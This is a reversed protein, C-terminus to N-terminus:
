AKTSSAKKLLLLNLCGTIVYIIGAPINLLALLVVGSAITIISFILSIKGHFKKLSSLIGFAAGIICVIAEVLIHIRGANSMPGPNIYKNYDPGFLIYLIGAAIGVVALFKSLKGM